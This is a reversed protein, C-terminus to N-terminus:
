MFMDKIDLTSHEGIADFNEALWRDGAQRGLKQLYTLFSWDANFKSTGGHEEIREDAEVMHMRIQRMGSRRKIQGEAILDTILAIVRMERMLTSTFSIESIRELIASATQPARSTEIPNAQVLLVDSSECNYILPYLAPNGMYGGDWYYAGDIEVPRFLFPLCASACLADVTIEQIDFVRIKNTCVNTASVFLKIEECRNLIDFDISKGIVRRLPNMNAPNFDYHLLIRAMLDHFVGGSSLDLRDQRFLWYLSFWSRRRRHCAESINWWFMALRRRAGARGGEALGSALLAGNVAGSSTASIGEIGLREDELLRDLVGWVFAGHSGGGQLALNLVKTSKRHWNFM